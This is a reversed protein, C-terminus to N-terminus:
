ESLWDDKKAFERWSGDSLLKHDYKIRNLYYFLRAHYLRWSASHRMLSFFCRLESITLMFFHKLIQGALRIKSYNYKRYETYSDSSGQNALRQNLYSQTAKYSPIIHHLKSSGIFGFKYGLKRIKINLGTEGDGLWGEPTKEPNFGGSKFFAERSVAQHCSFINCDHSSIILEEPPDNISLLCNYFLQRVWKPPESEWKPLVRGTASAVKPDYEFVRVIEKLLDGDAVVDEDAFYLIDGAATKAASNRAFHVGQRKEMHYKVRGPYAEIYEKAIDETSDSSNNDSIIIEYLAPNYSQSLFSDITLRLADGRNYTPIIVSIKM